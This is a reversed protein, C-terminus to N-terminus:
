NLKAKVLEIWMTSIKKWLVRYDPVRSGEFKQQQLLSWTVISNMNKIAAEIVFFPPPTVFIM